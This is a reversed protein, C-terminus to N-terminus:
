NPSAIDDHPDVLLEPGGESPDNLGHPFVNYTADAVWDILAELKGTHANIHAHYWNNEMEIQLDWVLQLSMDDLQLYRQSLKVPSLAFPINEIILHDQDDENFSEFYQLKELPPVSQNIYSAFSKLADFPSLIERTDNNIKYQVTNYDNVKNVKKSNPHSSIIVQHSNSTIFYKGNNIVVNEEKFSSKTVIEHSTLSPPVVFSDGYSIVRGFKDININLDGNTVQLGNVVQRFYVHTVGNHESKYINKIIFDSYPHLSEKVFRIAIERASLERNPATLANFSPGTTKLSAPVIYSRHHLEPGFNGRDRSVHSTSPDKVVYARGGNTVLTFLACVLALTKATRM